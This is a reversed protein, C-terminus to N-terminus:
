QVKGEIRLDDGDFRLVHSDRASVLRSFVRETYRESLSELSHNTVFFTYLGKQKRECLLDFLYERTVNQTMPEAGLDDVALIRAQYFLEISYGEGLRHQYFYDFMNGATIYCIDQEKKELEKLLAQLLFSKGLGSRGRLLLQNKDNDPFCHAYDQLFLKIGYAQNRQKEKDGFINESFKSFDGETASLEQAGLVEVYAMQRICRCLKGQFYGTGHCLPCIEESIYERIHNKKKYEAIKKDLILIKKSVEQKIKSKREPTYIIEKLQDVLLEKKQTDLEELIPHQAYIKRQWAVAKAEQENKISDYRAFLDAMTKAM